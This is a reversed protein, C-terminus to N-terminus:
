DQVVGDEAAVRLVALRMRLRRRIDADSNDPMLWLTLKGYRRSALRLLVLSGMARSSLLTAPDDAGDLGRLTWGGKAWGVAYIPLRLRHMAQGCAVVVVVILACRLLWPAGLLIIALLALSAMLLFLRPVWRSPRYEFGIAPASTM